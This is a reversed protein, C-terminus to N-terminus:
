FGNDYDIYYADLLTDKTMNTIQVGKQKAFKAIEYHVQTTFSYKFLMVGLPDHSQKLDYFHANTAFVSYDCGFLRIDTYGAYIGFLIAECVVNWTRSHLRSFDMIKKSNFLKGWPCFYFVKNDLQPYRKKVTDRMTGNVLFTTDINSGFVGKFREELEPLIYADDMIMYYTPPNDVVKDKMRFFDNVVLYDDKISEFDVRKLSPGNGCIYLTKGCMSDKYKTTKKAAKLAKRYKLRMYLVKPTLLINYVFMDLTFLSNITM